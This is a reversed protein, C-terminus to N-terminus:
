VIFICIDIINKPPSFGMRERLGQRRLVAVNVPDNGISETARNGRGHNLVFVLDTPLNHRAHRMIECTLTRRGSRSRPQLAEAAPLGLGFEGAFRSWPRIPGLDLLRVGWDGNPEIKPDAHPQDQPTSLRM